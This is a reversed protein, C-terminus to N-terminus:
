GRVVGLLDRFYTATRELGTRLPVVPSWGLVERALTIDPRRVRPDDVPLPEYVIESDSGTVDLVTEALEFVTIEAPNGLNMPGTHDSLLLRYLGEVLDDVYCFSRTQSGDGYVTIAEGALAQRIFNSVVRGDHPRILPGYTNHACVLGAIFNERDPVSLDYFYPTGQCPLVEKVKAWVLDGWRSANLTQRVGDKWSLIDFSSLECVTVRSFSFRKGKCTTEYRGISGVIGFRLLLLALDDAMRPSATNFALERGVQSGSHTGDGCRYGELFHALRGIPLQLVWPPIRREHSRGGLKLVESLLWCYLRSNVRLAPSRTADAPILGTNLGIGKLIERARELYIQDSSLVAAYTKPGRVTISGEALHFGLLWLFDDTIEILAPLRDRGGGCYRRITANTPLPLALARHVALPLCSLGGGLGEWRRITSSVSRGPAFSKSDRQKRLLWLVIRSRNECIMAPLGPGEVCWSWLDEDSGARRILEEYISVHPRDKEVVPLRAPIAVHDRATIERSPRAEPLGRPGRVFLSHDGTVRIRRGYRLRVEFCDRGSNPIRLFGTAERLSM